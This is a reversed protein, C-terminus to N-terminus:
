AQHLQNFYISEIRREYLCYNCKAQTSKISGLSQILLTNTLLCHQMNPLGVTIEKDRHQRESGIARINGQVLHMHHTWVTYASYFNLDGQM